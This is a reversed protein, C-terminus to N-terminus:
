TESIGENVTKKEGQSSSVGSIGMVTTGNQYIKLQTEL